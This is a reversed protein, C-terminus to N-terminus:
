ASKKSCSLDLVGNDGDPEDNEPNESRDNDPFDQDAVDEADAVHSEERTAIEPLSM